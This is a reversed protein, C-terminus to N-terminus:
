TYHSDGNAVRTQKERYMAWLADTFDQAFRKVDFLPSQLARDRLESRLQALHQPDAAFHCAIRIYDDDNQAIWDTLGVCRLMSVGQLSLMTNGMRTVTPVGMWLAQATTTGGTFPFTDLIIDVESYAAFYLDASTQPLLDVRSLDLGADRLRTTLQERLSDIVATDTQIRLRAQPAARLVNAWLALVDGNLKATRQFSGFTVYGNRLCPPPTLPIPREARPATMCLRTSPLRYIKESFWETSDEPICAPDAIIYDMSTLGTSAWYGLWTAQVPAPRQAFVALRGDGTYGSLDLLVDIKHALVLDAATSDDVDRIDVWEDFVAKLIETGTDDYVNNSFAVTHIRSADLNELMGLLFHLVPHHKFEGAVFGVRLAQLPTNGQHQNHLPPYLQRGSELTQAFRKAVAVYDKRQADLKSYSLLMLLTSNAIYFDPRSAAARQLLAVARAEDGLTGFHGGRVTDVYPAHKPDDALAREFFLDSEDERYLRLLALGMPLNIDALPAGLAIAATFSDVVGQSNAVDTWFRGLILHYEHESPCRRICGELFKPVEGKKKSAMLMHLGDTCAQVFDPKHELAATFQRLADDWDKQQESIQGLLYYAEYVAPHQGTSHAARRLAVRAEVLRGQEKLVYGLCILLETSHPAHTLASRFCSEAEDLNAAAIYANGKKRLSDIVAADAVPASNPPMALAGTLTQLRRELKLRLRDFM